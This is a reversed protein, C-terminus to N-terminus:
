LISFCVKSSPIPTMNKCCFKFRMKRSLDNFTQREKESYDKTEFLTTRRSSVIDSVEQDELQHQWTEVRGNLMANVQESTVQATMMQSFTPTSMRKVSATTSSTVHLEEEQKLTTTSQQANQRDAVIKNLKRDFISSSSGSDALSSFLVASVNTSATLPTSVLHNVPTPTSPRSGSTASGLLGNSSFASLARVAASGVPM